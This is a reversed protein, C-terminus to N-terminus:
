VGLRRKESDILKHVRYGIASMLLVVSGIWLFGGFHNKVYWDYAISSWLFVVLATTALMPWYTTLKIAPSDKAPMASAGTAQASFIENQHEFIRNQRWLFYLTGVAVSLDRWDAFSM